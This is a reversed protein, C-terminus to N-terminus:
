SSGFGQHEPFAVSQIQVHTDALADAGAHAEGSFGHDFVDDPAEGSRRTGRPYRLLVVQDTKCLEWVPGLNGPRVLYKNQLGDEGDLSLVSLFESHWCVLLLVGAHELDDDWIIKWIM